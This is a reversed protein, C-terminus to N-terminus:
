DDEHPMDSPARRYGLCTTVPQRPYKADVTENRCLLYTQEYRGTVVRGHICSLCLSPKTM